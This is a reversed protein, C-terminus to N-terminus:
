KNVEGKRYELIRFAKSGDAWMITDLTKTDKVSMDCKGVEVYLVNEESNLRDQGTKDGTLPCDLPVFYYKDFGSYNLDRPSGENQYKNPDYKSFFLIYIYPSSNGKTIVIKKYNSHYNNLKLVLEKYAYGRYWPHHLNQHVFYQHLFYSFEYIILALLLLIIPKYLKSKQFTKYTLTEYIGFAIIACIAPLIILTRHVNPIEDFTIFVPLLLLIWWSIFTLGKKNKTKLITYIGVLLFPIEWLYFLGVGPTRERQPYGGSLALFDLTFYQQANFLITRAYNVIKNHFTRTILIPNLEDERIQEEMVLKTQPNSFISLQNFREISGVLSYFIGLVIFSLIVIFIRNNFSIKNKVKNISFLLFIVSLIVVYFRFPAYSLIAMLGSLISFFVWRLSKNEYLKTLFISLLLCFFVGLIVDGTVRSINIDWPSIALLFSSILAIKKNKTLEKVLIFLLFIVFTSFIVSPLRVAFPNLGLTAIFPVDVYAYLAGKYDGFSKLVIPLFNGYEDKGTQLISYANYGFAAEDAHFGNPVDSLDYVRIAFGLLLIFFLLFKFKNIKKIMGM